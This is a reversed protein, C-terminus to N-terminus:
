LPKESINVPELGLFYHFKLRLDSTGKSSHPPGSDAEPFSSNCQTQPSFFVLKKQRNGSHQFSFKTSKMKIMIFSLSLSGYLFGLEVQSRILETPLKM